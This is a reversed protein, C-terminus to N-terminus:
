IPDGPLHAGGRRQPRWRRTCPTSRWFEVVGPLILVAEEPGVRRGYSPEWVRITEEILGDTVWQLTRVPETRPAVTDDTQPQKVPVERESEAVEIMKRALEGIVEM